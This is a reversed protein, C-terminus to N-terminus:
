STHLLISCIDYMYTYARARLPEDGKVQRQHCQDLWWIVKPSHHLSRAWPGSWPQGNPKFELRICNLGELQETRWSDSTFNLWSPDMSISICFHLLLARKWKMFILSSRLLHPLVFLTGTRPPVTLCDRCISPKMQRAANHLVLCTACHWLSSLTCRWTTSPYASERKEHSFWNIMEEKTTDLCNRLLKYYISIHTNGKERSFWFMMEGKIDNDDVYIIDFSFDHIPKM